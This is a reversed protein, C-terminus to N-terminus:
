RKYVYISLAPMYVRFKKRGKRQKNQTSWAPAYDLPSCGFQPDMSWVIKNFALNTPFISTEMWKIHLRSPTPRSEMKANEKSVATSVSGKFGHIFKCKSVCNQEDLEFLNMCLVMIQDLEQTYM